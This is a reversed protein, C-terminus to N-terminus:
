PYVGKLVVDAPQHFGIRRLLDAVQFLAHPEVGAERRGEQSQALGIKGVLLEIQCGGGQPAQRAVVGVCALGVEIATQGIEIQAAIHFRFVGEGKHALLQRQGFHDVVLSHRGAATAQVGGGEELLRYRGIGIIRVVLEVQRKGQAALFVYRSRQLRDLLRELEAGLVAFSLGELGRKAGPRLVWSGRRGAIADVCREIWVRRRIADRQLPDLPSEVLGGEALGGKGHFLHLLFAQSGQRRLLLRGRESLRSHPKEILPQYQLCLTLKLGRERGVTAVRVGM